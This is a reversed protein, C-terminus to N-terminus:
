TRTRTTSRPASRPSCGCASRAREPQARRLLRRDPCRRRAGHRLVPTRGRDRGRRLPAINPHNLAGLVQRELRFRELMEDTDLGRRMVKIAVRKQFRDDLRQAQFVTGMGGRGIQGMMRYGAISDADAARSADGAAGAPTYPETKDPDGAPAASSPDHAVTEAEPDTEGSSIDPEGPPTFRVTPDEHGTEPPEGPAGNAPHGSGPRDPDNPEAPTPDDRDDTM